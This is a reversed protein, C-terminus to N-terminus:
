LLSLQLSQQQKTYCSNETDENDLIEKLGKAVATALGCPVANGIQQYIASTPGQFIYGDPFTQIRSCEEITLRRLFDPADDKGLPQGGELLHKHYKEVWSEAGDYVHNEDIIPTKNGGMSAPLTCSLSDPNLPRGSGNFLMGAYPSRRLVPKTAITIRAKCTIPNKVTGAKGLPILLERMKPPVAEYHRIKEEIRGNIRTGKVGILFMRKRNQPVGFDAANLVLLDTDYGAETAKEILAERVLSFKDLTGLSYVNEMVFAKPQHKKVIELFLFVLRSREDNPDMKGAVSFGQCPSGGFIVDVQPLQDLDEFFDSLLGWKILTDRNATYTACAHKNSDNAWVIKFGASEFGVDLGGAGSFLSIAKM